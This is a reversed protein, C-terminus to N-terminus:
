AEAIKLKWDLDLPEFIEPGFELAGAYPKITSLDVDAPVGYSITVHPHYESFDHSGGAEVMSRHRSELDWSAFLLVVAGEGFREIARPGGPKIMIRGKDDGAWSEGMKMPDVPDRSYLVTVHMDDARLTSTFGNEQAWAILDEGNLLKRQVYLPRPQADAFFADQAARGSAGIGNLAGAGASSPDGGESGVIGLEAEDGGPEIEGAAKQKDREDKYGPWRGSEIMRNSYSQELADDSFLGTNVLKTLTDAEKNEVDAAQQATLTRIASFTWSLDTPVGASPLLVEDLEDLAPRLDDDQQAAIGDYYNTLDSEGTSNMGDPSKGLLRTAPINSAGAVISLYTTIIDKWGSFNLTRTEWKDNADLTLSRNNSKETTAIQIRQRVKDEGGPQALTEALRDLFFVDVKAEDILGAFGATATTADQVAENVSQVISDGWFKDEWSTTASFSPVPQGKFFVLRSPHILPTQATNLRFDSPKGFNPDLVNDIMQEVTLQTRYLPVLSVIQEPRITAPLPQSPDDGLNIFIAGGGLRGYTLALRVAPWYGIRKEEAEIKEIEDDTADWSRGARTMDQAPIDVVQRTLWSTRYAAEIQEPPMCRNVWFNHVARDVTTGRGTLVNALGDAFRRIPSVNGM